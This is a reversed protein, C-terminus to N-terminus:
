DRGIRQLGMSPLRGSKETQPIEWASYQLPYFIEAESCVYRSHAYALRRMERYEEPLFFVAREARPPLPEDQYVKSEIRWRAGQANM